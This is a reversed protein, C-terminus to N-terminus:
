PALLGPCHACRPGERPPRRPPRAGQAILPSRSASPSGRTARPSQPSRPVAAIAHAPAVEAGRLNVARVGVVLGGGSESGPRGVKEGLRAGEGAGGGDGGGRSRGQGKEAPM